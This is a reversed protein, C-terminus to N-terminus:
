NLNLQLDANFVKYSWRTGIFSEAEVLLNVIKPSLLPFYFPPSLLPQPPPPPVCPQHWLDFDYICTCPAPSPQMYLLKNLCNEEKFMLIKSNLLIRPFFIKSNGILVILELLFLNM